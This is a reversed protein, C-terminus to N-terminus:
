LKNIKQTYITKEDNVSLIYIGNPLSSVDIPEQSNFKTLKLKLAGDISKVNLEANEIKTGDSFNVYINESSPNPYVSLKSAKSGEVGTMQTSVSINDFKLYTGQAGELYTAFVYFTDPIVTEDLYQMQATFDQFSGNTNSSVEFMGVGVIESSDGAVNYKSAYIDFYASRPGGNFEYQGNLTTIRENAAFITALDSGINMTDIEIRASTNANIVDYVASISIPIDFFYSFMLGNVPAWMEPHYFKMQTGSGTEFSDLTWLELDGNQLGSGANKHTLTQSAKKIRLNADTIKNSSTFQANVSTNLLIIGSILLLIKKM